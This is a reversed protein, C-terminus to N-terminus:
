EKRSQSTVRATLTECLEDLKHSEKEILERGLNKLLAITSASADDMSCAHGDLAVQFRYYLQCASTAQCMLPQLQYDVSENVCELVIDFLPKACRVAGWYKTLGLPLNRMLSGTGLSVMLYDSVSSTTRAEVLACAAPSNAYVGGDILTYYESN